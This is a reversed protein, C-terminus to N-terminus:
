HAHAGHGHDDKKGHGGGGKGTMERARKIANKIDSMIVMFIAFPWGLHFPWSSPPNPRFGPKGLNQSEKADPEEKKASEKKQMKELHEERAQEDAERVEPPYEGAQYHEAAEDSTIHSEASESGREHSAPMHEPNM